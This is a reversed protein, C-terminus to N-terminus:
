DTKKTRKTKKPKSESLKKMLKNETWEQAIDEARGYEAWYAQKYIESAADKNQVLFDLYDQHTKFFKNGKEDQCCLEVFLHMRQDNALSEATHSFAETKNMFLRMSELRKASMKELLEELEKREKKSLKEANYQEVITELNALDMLVSTVQNEDEETWVGNKRFLKRAEVETMVGQRIADSHIKRYLLDLQFIEDQNPNKFQLKQVKDGITVEFM